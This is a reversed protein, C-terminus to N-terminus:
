TNPLVSCSARWQFLVSRSIKSSYASTSSGNNLLSQSQLQSISLYNFFHCPKREWYGGPLGAKDYILNIHSKKIKFVTVVM